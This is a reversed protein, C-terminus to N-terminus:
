YFGCSLLHGGALWTTTTALRNGDKLLFDAEHQGSHKIETNM